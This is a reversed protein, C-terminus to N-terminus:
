QGTGLYSYLHSPIGPVIQAYINFVVVGKHLWWEPHMGSLM